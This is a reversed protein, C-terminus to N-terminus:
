LQKGFIIMIQYANKSSHNSNRSWSCKKKQRILNGMKQPLFIGTHHLSPLIKPFSTLAGEVEAEATDARTDDEEDNSM